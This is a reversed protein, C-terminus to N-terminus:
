KNEDIASQLIEDATPKLRLKVQKISQLRFQECRTHQGSCAASGSSKRMNWSNEAAFLSM